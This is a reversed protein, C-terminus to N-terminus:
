VAQPSTCNREIPANKTHINPTHTHSHACAFRVYMCVHVYVCTCVCVRVYVCVYMCVCVCVCVCSGCKCLLEGKRNERFQSKCTVGAWLMIRALEKIELVICLGRSYTDVIPRFCGRFIGLHSLIGFLLLKQDQPRPKKNSRKGVDSHKQQTYTRV